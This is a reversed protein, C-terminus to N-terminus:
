QIRRRVGGCVFRGECGAGRKGRSSARPRWPPGTSVLRGESWRATCSTPRALDACAIGRTSSPRWDANSTPVSRVVRYTHNEAPGDRFTILRGTFVDDLPPASSSNVRFEAFGTDRSPTTSTRIMAGVATTTLSMADTRGYYDSLLDEGFFPHNSDDTGRVLTM